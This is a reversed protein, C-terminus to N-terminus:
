KGREKKETKKKGIEDKNRIKSQCNLILALPVNTGEQM